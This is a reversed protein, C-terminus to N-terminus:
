GGMHDKLIKRTYFLGFGSGISSLIIATTFGILSGLWWGVGGGISIGILVIIGRM